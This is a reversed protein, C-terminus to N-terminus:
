MSRCDVYIDETKSDVNTVVRENYEKRSAKEIRQRTNRRRKGTGTFRANKRQKYWAEGYIEKACHIVGTAALQQQDAREDGQPVSGGSVALKHPKVVAAASM